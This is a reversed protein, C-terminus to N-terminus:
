SNAAHHVTLRHSFRCRVAVGCCVVVAACDSTVTYLIASLRLAMSSMRQQQMRLGIGDEGRM